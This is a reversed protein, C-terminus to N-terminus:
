CVVFRLRVCDKLMWPRLGQRARERSRASQGQRPAFRHPKGALEKGQATVNYEPAVNKVHRPDEPFLGAQMRQVLCAPRVKLYPLTDLSEIFTDTARSIQYTTTRVYPSNSIQSQFNKNTKEEPEIKSKNYSSAICSCRFLLAISRM